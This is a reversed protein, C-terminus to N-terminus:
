VNEIKAAARTIKEVEALEEAVFSEAEVRVVFREEAACGLEEINAAHDRSDIRLRRQRIESFFEIEDSPVADTKM